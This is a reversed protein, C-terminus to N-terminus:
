GRLGAATTISYRNSNNNSNNNNSSNNNNKNNKHNYNNKEHNVDYFPSRKRAFDDDSNRRDTREMGTALGAMGVWLKTGYSSSVFDFLLRLCIVCIVILNM